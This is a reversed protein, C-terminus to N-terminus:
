QGPTTDLAFVHLAHYVLREAQRLMAHVNKENIGTLRAIEAQSRGHYHRLIFIQRLASPMSELEEVIEAFLENRNYTELEMM